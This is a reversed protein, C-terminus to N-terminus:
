DDLRLSSVVVLRTLFEVSCKPEVLIRARRIKGAHFALEFLCWRTQGDDKLTKICWKVKDSEVGQQLTRQQRIIGDV